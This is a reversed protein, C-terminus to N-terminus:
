RQIPRSNAGAPSGKRQTAHLPPKLRGRVGILCRRAVSTAGVHCLLLDGAPPPPPTERLVAGRRRLRGPTCVRGHSIGPWNLEFCRFAAWCHSLCLAGSLIWERAVSLRAWAMLLAEWPMPLVERPMPLAEWPMPLAEWPMPLREWPMPLAEWPMPLRERPMPLAERPMPLREWAVLLGDSAVPAGDSAMRQKRKLVAPRLRTSKRVAGGGMCGARAM